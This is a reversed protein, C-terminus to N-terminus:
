EDLDTSHLEPPEEPLSITASVDESVTLADQLHPLIGDGQGASSDCTEPLDPDKLLLIWWNMDQEYWETIGLGNYLPGEFGAM